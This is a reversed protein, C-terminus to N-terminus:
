GKRKAEESGASPPDSILKGTREYRVALPVIIRLMVSFVKKWSTEVSPTYANPGLCKQLTYFLVEGIVGYESAKVGRECHRAALSTMTKEFKQSDRLQSLSMSVMQVLFAGVSEVGKTFLPRCLPHVNFLREYFVHYFWIICTEPASSPDNKKFETFADSKDEVILNWVNQCATIDRTTVEAKPIYYVPMMLLVIEEELGRM